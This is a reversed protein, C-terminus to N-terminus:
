RQARDSPSAQGLPRKAAVGPRRPFRTPTEAVKALVYLHRHAATPYPTVAHIEPSSLGLERAARQAKADAVADRRGRWVVLSGGVRLLPAAYEATVELSSLARATALNYRALGDSFSEARVHVVDVNSIGCETAVRSLFACKRRSSELLTFVAHPLAVALALGPFGPGSGLDVVTRASRVVDLELAVLSDAVHDDLVAAPDRVTTPAQPDAGVLDVLAHLQAVADAALNFRVALGALGRVARTV